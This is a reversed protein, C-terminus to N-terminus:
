IGQELSPYIGRLIYRIYPSVARIGSHAALEKLARYEQNTFIVSITKNKTGPSCRRDLESVLANSVVQDWPDTM